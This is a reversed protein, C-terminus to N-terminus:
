INYYGKMIECRYDVVVDINCIIDHNNTFLYWQGQYYIMKKSTAIEEELMLIYEDDVLRNYILSYSGNANQIISRPRVSLTGNNVGTTIAGSGRDSLRRLFPAHNPDTVIIDEDILVSQTNNIWPLIPLQANVITYVGGSVPNEVSDINLATIGTEYYKNEPIIGRNIEERTAEEFHKGGLYIGEIVTDPDNFSLMGTEGIIHKDFSEEKSEKVYVVTGPEASIVAEDISILSQTWDKYKEFYKNWIKKYISTNPKFSGWVQGMRNFYDIKRMQESTNESYNLQTHYDIRVKTDVPFTLSTINIGQGKLEYIGDPKIVITQGNLAAIYGLISGTNKGAPVIEGGNEKILYPKDIFELRLFDLSKVLSVFGEPARDKYKENLITLVDKGAPIIEEIAGLINGSYSLSTNLQGQSYIHYFDMLKLTCEDIEIANCSFNYIHRGLAIEPTFNIDTLKVLINGETASRFLKVNHKYLFAMVLERFEREYTRDNVETIRKEDNYKDYLNIIDEKWIREKATFLQDKDMFHTILGTIPFSRYYQNGNRKIIPFKSGITNNVSEAVNYKFSSINPNFQIKIQTNDAGLFLSDDFEIMQPEELKLIQGRKGLSDRKQAAYKYWVGSEITCDWWTFDLPINEFSTTYIDEWTEFNSDSSTRRITVNGIFNDTPNLSKITIGIRANDIDKQATIAANLSDGSTELVSFNYEVEDQFFNKTQYDVKLKYSKGNILYKNLVYKLENINNYNNPYLIDSDLLLQNDSDYLKIQYQKLSDTEASDLYTIKGVIDVNTTSWISHDSGNDFGLISLIPPSIARILCVTSWESFYQLNNALWGDIAQPVSLNISQADTGTFRFQVKYYQNIKFSGGQMDSKKIEFYYKDESTKTNDIILNKLMIGCPYKVNDLATLNNFQNNVVVQINKIENPINYSSLSFYIRCTDKVENGSNLLFAPAYTSVVGPYLNNLIAM